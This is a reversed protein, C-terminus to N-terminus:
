IKGWVALHMTVRVRVRADAGSSAWLAAAKRYVDEELKEFAEWESELFAKMESPKDWYYFFPFEESKKLIFWGCSQVERMAQKAAEDDAVGQPLDSLRGAAQYGASSVGRPSSTSVVEVAWSDELPRLDLLTGNPQLVRHIEDLAHVMSEHEM